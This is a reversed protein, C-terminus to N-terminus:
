AQVRDELYSGELNKGLYKKSYKDLYHRGKEGHLLEGEHTRVKSRIHRLEAKTISHRKGSRDYFDIKNPKLIDM